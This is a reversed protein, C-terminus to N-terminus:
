LRDALVRYFDTLRLYYDVVPVVFATPRPVAAVWDALVELSQSQKNRLSELHDLVLKYDIHLTFEALSKPLEFIIRSGMRVLYLELKMLQRRLHEVETWYLMKPIKELKGERVVNPAGLAFFSRAEEVTTPINITLYLNRVQSNM